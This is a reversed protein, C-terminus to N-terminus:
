GGELGGNDVGIVLSGETLRVGDAEVWAECEIDLMGDRQSTSAVCGAVTYKQGVHAPRLNRYRLSRVWAGGGAWNQVLDVLWQGQLPGHVVLGHHGELAAYGADVHIRHANWTAASYLFLSVEDPNRLQAPLREGVRPMEDM